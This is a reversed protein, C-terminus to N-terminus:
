GVGDGGGDMNPWPDGAVSRKSTETNHVKLEERLVAGNRESSKMATASIADVL